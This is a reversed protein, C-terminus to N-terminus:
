EILVVVTSWRLEFMMLCFLVSITRTVRSYKYIANMESGLITWPNGRTADCHQFIVLFLRILACDSSDHNYSTFCKGILLFHILLPFPINDM